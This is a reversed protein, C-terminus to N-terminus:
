SDYDHEEDYEYDIGWSGDASTEIKNNDSSISMIRDPDFGAEILKRELPRITNMISYAWRKLSAYCIAYDDISKPLSYGKRGSIFYYKIFHDYDTLSQQRMYRIASSLQGKTLNTEESLKIASVPKDNQRLVKYIVNVRQKLQEESLKKRAM